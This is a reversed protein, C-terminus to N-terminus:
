DEYPEEGRDDLVDDYNDEGMSRAVADAKKRAARAQKDVSTEIMPLPVWDTKKTVACLWWGFAVLGAGLLIYVANAILTALILM